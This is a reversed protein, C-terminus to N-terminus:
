FTTVKPVELQQVDVLPKDDKGGKAGPKAVPKPPAKGAPKGTKAEEALRKAEEAKQEM